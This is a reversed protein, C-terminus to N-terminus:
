FFSLQKETFKATKVCWCSDTMPICVDEGKQLEFEDGGWGVRRPQCLTYLLNRM